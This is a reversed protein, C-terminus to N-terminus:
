IIDLLVLFLYIFCAAVHFDNFSPLYYTLLDYPLFITLVYSMFDARANGMFVGSPMDVGTSAM